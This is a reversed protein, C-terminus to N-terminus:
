DNMLRCFDKFVYGKADNFFICYFNGKKGCYEIKKGTRLRGIIPSVSDADSYVNVSSKLLIYKKPEEQTRESGKQPDVVEMKKIVSGSQTQNASQNPFVTNRQTSSRKPESFISKHTWGTRADNLHIRYWDGQKGGTLLRDGQHRVAIVKNRTSPGSRINARATKVVFSKKDNRITPKDGTTSKRTATHRVGLAQDLDKFFKKRLWNETEPYHKGDVKFLTMFAKAFQAQFKVMTRNATERYVNIYEKANYNSGGILARWGTIKQIEIEETEIYGTRPNAHYIIDQQNLVRLIAKWTRDYSAKYTKVKTIEETIGYDPKAVGQGERVLDCSSLTLAALLLTLFHKCHKM